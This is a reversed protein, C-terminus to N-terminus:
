FPELFNHQFNGNHSLLNCVRSTDMLNSTWDRTESLLNFIRCQQLSHQPDCVHSCDPTATAYAPLQMELKVGLKPVEMHWLLPGLSFIFSFSIHWFFNHETKMLFSVISVQKARLVQIFINNKYMKYKNIFNFVSHQILNWIHPLLAFSYCFNQSSYLFFSLYPKGTRNRFIYNWWWSTFYSLRM